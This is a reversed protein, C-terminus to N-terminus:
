IVHIASLMKRKTLPGDDNRETCKTLNISLQDNDKSWLTGLIKTEHPLTGVTLKAYTSSEKATLGDRMSDESEEIKPMNCHWKHLRFGGEKMIETAEAKFKSLKEIDDGGSQIDDVYTNKLLDAVTEPNQEAYQGIHKQLASRLIYPSPASGFIVRTFRYFIINRDQLNDFWLM